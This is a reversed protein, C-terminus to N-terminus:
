TPGLTSTLQKTNTGTLLLKRPRQRRQWGAGRAEASTVTKNTKATNDDETVAHITILKGSNKVTM